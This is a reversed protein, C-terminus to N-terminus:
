EFGKAIISEAPKGRPTFDLNEKGPRPVYDCRMQWIHVGAMWEKKWVTNFFAEYCNAQTENSLPKNANPTYEIWEWPKIASNSTSKYGMETFLVKRNYKQYVAEITPLHKNWGNSIQEVTPNENRTLPFYAQIGIFDLEDWFTIKEFEKYWNAAYTIKGSYVSRVEQILDKWYEPKEVSLRSFETGVCFMEANGQQAIKAYRIIFERYSKKWSKWNEENTPYVDSRWKGDSPNSIWVHPKVFVKFGLNRVLEIRKIWTSDRKLIMLSDGNHHGVYPSDYDDQSSWAVLTVWEINNRTLPKFNLSDIDGFIHAGKQKYTVADTNRVCNTGSKQESDTGKNITHGQSFVFLFFLLVIPVIVSFTLRNISKYKM